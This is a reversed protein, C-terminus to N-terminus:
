RLRGPKRGEWLTREPRISSKERLSRWSAFPFPLTRVQNEEAERQPKAHPLNKLDPTSSIERLSRWSAFLRQARESSEQSRESPPLLDSAVYALSRRCKVLAGLPELDPRRLFLHRFLAL